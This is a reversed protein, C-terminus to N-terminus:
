FWAQHYLTHKFQKLNFNRLIVFKIFLYLFLIFHMILSTLDFIVRYSM